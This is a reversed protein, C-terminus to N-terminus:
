EESTNMQSMDESDMFFFDRVLSEARSSDKANLRFIDNIDISKDTKAAAEAFIYLHYDSDLEQVSIVGGDKKYRKGAKMKDRATFTDFDYEIETRETGDVMIPKVLVLKSM